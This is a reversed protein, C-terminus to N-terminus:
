KIEQIDDENLLLKVSLMTGPFYNNTKCVCKSDPKCEIDGDNNFAMVRFTENNKNKKVINYRGDFIIKTNGSLLTM